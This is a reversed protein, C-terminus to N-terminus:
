ELGHADEPPKALQEVRMLRLVDAPEARAQSPLCGFRDCVALVM